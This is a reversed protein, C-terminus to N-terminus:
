VKNLTNRYQNWISLLDSIKDWNFIRSFILYSVSGVMILIILKTVSGYFGDLFLNVSITVICMLLVTLVTRTFTKSFDTFRLDILKFPIAFVPYLFLLNTILYSLAVGIVGWKLGVIFGAITITTYLLGWKFMWDTKGKAMYINGSTSYVSQLAGVPALIIILWAILSIDWKSGFFVSAFDFSILALGTMLPFTIIAITSTIQKYVKQFKSNDNQIKSLSPFFVRTVVYTINQLPYLMIKYALYYHGLEKEGLFKGILFYDGNRSFFNIFNFGVLNLSFRKIKSLEKIRFYIGPKWKSYIILLISSVLASALVQFVLSWVGYGNFALVLVIIFSFFSAILEIISLNQFILEKELLSKQLISFGTIFFVFSLVQLVQELKPANYIESVIPASLFIITTIVAGVLVNFWYVTSKLEHSPNQIQIMASGTGFDKFIELFNILVVAMAMLGFEDPALIGVLILTSIYQLVQRFVQSITSWKLGKITTLLLRESM